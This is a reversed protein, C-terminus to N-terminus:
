LLNSHAIHQKEQEGDLRLKLYKEQGAVLEDMYM